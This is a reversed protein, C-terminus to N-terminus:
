DPKRSFFHTSIQIVRNGLTNGESNTNKNPQRM